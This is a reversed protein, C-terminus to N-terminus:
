RRRRRKKKGENRQKRRAAAPDTPQETGEPPSDATPTTSHSEAGAETNEPPEYSAQLQGLEDTVTAETQDAHIGEAVVRRTVEDLHEHLTSSLAQFEPWLTEDVFRRSVRAMVTTRHQGKRRYPQIGYRRCLALFVRRSWMDAMTFRYEVPPDSEAMEALRQLIRDRAHGAASREGPTGPRAYLAEIARLKQLLRAEDPTTM